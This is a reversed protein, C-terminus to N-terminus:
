VLIGRCDTGTCEEFPFTNPIIIAESSFTFTRGEEAWPFTVKIFFALYGNVPNAFTARYAGNGLNEVQYEIWQINTPVVSIGELVSLRFDRRPAVMEPTLAAYASINVVENQTNLTISGGTETYDKVWSLQPYEQDQIVALYFTELMEWVDEALPGGGVSHGTNELIWMYKPELMDDYFYEYDDCMFFEDSAGSIMLKPMTLINRYHYPDIYKEMDFIRPHDIWSTINHTWYDGFAYPWNGLAQWYHKTNNNTNLLSLVIPAMAEVRGDAAGTLWTTWGRKSAGAVMFKEIANGNLGQVFDIITDMARSAGKVMPFRALIEPDEEEEPTELFKQWTYAILGDETRDIVTNAFRLPQNPTQRLTATVMGTRDAYIGTERNQGTENGPVSSTRSNGMIYMFARDPILIEHPVHISVYHWWTPYNSWSEDFWVQSTMNIIYTDHKEGPITNILDWSYADDPRHVYDCLAGCDPHQSHVGSVLVSFILFGFPIM